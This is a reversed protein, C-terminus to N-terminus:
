VLDIVAKQTIRWIDGEKVAIGEELTRIIVANTNIDGQVSCAPDLYMKFGQIARQMTDEDPVIAFRAQNKGTLEMRYVSEAPRFIDSKRLDNFLGDVTPLRLFFIRSTMPALNEAETRATSPTVNVQANVQANAPVTPINPADIEFEISNAPRQNVPTEPLQMSPIEGFDVTNEDDIDDNFNNAFDDEFEDDDEIPPIVFSAASRQTEPRVTPMFANDLRMKLQTNLKKQNELERQLSTIQQELLKTDPSDPADSTGDPRQARLMAARNQQWFRLGIAGGLVGLLFVIFYNFFKSLASDSTESANQIPDPATSTEGSTPAAVVPTNATAGGVFRNDIYTSLEKTFDPFAPKNAGFEALKSSSLYGTIITSLESGTKGAQYDLKLSDTMRFIKDNKGLNNKNFFRQLNADTGGDANCNCTKMFEARLVANKASQVSFEAIKCNVYEVTNYYRTKQADSAPATQPQQQAFAQNSVFGCFIVISLSRINM